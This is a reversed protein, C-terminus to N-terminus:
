RLYTNWFEADAADSHVKQAGRYGHLADPYLMLEFSIGAKQLADALLLTNQLHVNDDGTGHTLRLRGVEGPQLDAIYSLVSAERYGDPNLQPTQMFRETYHSDYLSWDYVGGGAIGCCFTEPYRLVLMATSTGGFSFGKVGIKGSCWPQAKLWAAWARYDGLEPVTMRCFSGDMGRRGNEGSSRPDAVLYVIGNEYCWRDSADRSGWYDRVYPTGPGGYVQMVVPYRQAADFGRPYSILGYLDFGDSRLCVPQPQPRDDPVSEPGSV